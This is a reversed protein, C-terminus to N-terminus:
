RPDGVLGSYRSAILKESENIILQVDGFNALNPNTEIPDGFRGFMSGSNAEVDPSVLLPVIKEAYQETSPFILGIL